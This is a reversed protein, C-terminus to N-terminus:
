TFNGRKLNSQSLCFRYGFHTCLGAQQWTSAFGLNHWSFSNPDPRTITVLVLLLCQWPPSLSLGTSPDHDPRTLAVLILYLKQIVSLSTSTSIFSLGIQPTLGCSLSAWLVPWPYLLLWNTLLKHIYWSISPLNLSKASLRHPSLHSLFVYFIIDLNVGVNFFFPTSLQKHDWMNGEQPLSTLWLISVYFWIPQIPFQLDDFEVM